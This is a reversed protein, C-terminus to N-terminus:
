IGMMKDYVSVTECATKAWSFKAAHIL